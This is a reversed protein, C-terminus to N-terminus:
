KGAECLKMFVWTAAFAVAAPGSHGSILLGVGVLLITAGVAVSPWFFLTKLM